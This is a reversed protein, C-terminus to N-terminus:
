AVRWPPAQRFLALVGEAKLLAVLLAGPRRVGGSRVALRVRWIAWLLVRMAGPGYGYVEARFAGWIAWAYFRTSGPGQWGKALGLAVERERPRGGTSVRPAALAPEAPCPPAGLEGTMGLPEVPDGGGPGALMTGHPLARLGTAM